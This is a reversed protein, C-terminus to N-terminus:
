APSHWVILDISARFISTTGVREVFDREGDFFMRDFKIGNSTVGPALDVIAAEFVQRSQEYTLALSDLQVRPSRLGQFGDHTQVRDGTVTQLTIAPLPSGQPREVWFVTKRPSGGSPTYTPLLAGANGDILRARLAGQMDM